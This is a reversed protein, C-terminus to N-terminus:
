DVVGGTEVTSGLQTWFNANGHVSRYLSTLLKSQGLGKLPFTVLVTKASPPQQYPTTDTPDPDFKFPITLDHGTTTTAAFSISEDKLLPILFHSTWGAGLILLDVSKLRLM